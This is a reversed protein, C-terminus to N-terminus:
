VDHRYYKRFYNFKIEPCSNSFLKKRIRNINKEYFEEYDDCEDGYFTTPTNILVVMYSPLFKEDVLLTELCELYVTTNINAFACELSSAFMEYISPFYKSIDEQLYALCIKTFEPIAKLYIPNWQKESKPNFYYQNPDAKKKTEEDIEEFNIEIADLTNKQQELLRVYTALLRWTTQLQYQKEVPLKNVLELHIDWFLKTPFVMRKEFTFKQFYMSIQKLLEKVHGAINCEDWSMFARKFVPLLVKRYRHLQTDADKACLLYAAMLESHRICNTTFIKDECELLVNEVFEPELDEIIDTMKEILDNVDNLCETLKQPPASKLFKFSKMFFKGQVLMPVEKFDKSLTEYIKKSEDTSLNDIFMSLLEWIEQVMKPNTQRCLLDYTQTFLVVRISANKSNKWINNFVTKLEGSELKTFAFRIGHKQLSVPADLLKPVNERTQAVSMNYFVAHISPLAFQLYDGKAYLLVVEPTLLPRSVHMNRALHKQLNLVMEDDESWNIKFDTPVHKKLVEILQQQPALTCFARVVSKIAGPKELSNLYWATWEAALTQPWYVRLTRLVRRLSVHDNRHIQELAGKKSTLIEPGHKLLNYCTEDSPSLLLSEHLLVRRWSKNKTFLTSLNTKLNQTNKCQIINKITEPIWPYNAVDKKWDTLLIYINELVKSTDSLENENSFKETRIKKTLFNFLFDFIKEREEETIKNRISNMSKFQFKNEIIDPVNENHLIKYLVIAEVCSQVDKDSEVYVELNQFISDLNNWTTENFRYTEASTIIMNAFQMKFTYPENIHRDKYYQIITEIDQPNGKASSLLVGFMTVRQAPSPETRILKSLEAFSVNFPAFSYWQYVSGSSHTMNVDFCQQSDSSEGESKIEKQDKNKFKQIFLDKVYEFRSENPLVNVFHKLNKYKLWSKVREENSQYLKNILDEIEEPKLHRAFTQLDISDFYIEFKNLIRQPCTKMLFQTEKPGFTPVRYPSNYSEVIDLYTETDTKLLFMTARLMSTPYDYGKICIELFKISKECLRKFIDRNKSYGIELRYKQVEQVALALSCYPLWKFAAEVNRDKMYHYFNDLRMEDKLHIRIQLLLKTCAKSLMKPFLETQLYNPNIIYSYLPDTILWTSRSIVRSVYLMDECQLVKLLYEVNRQKCATDIKILNNIDNDAINFDEARLVKNREVTQKVLENYHRHKEGLSKGQLEQAAM